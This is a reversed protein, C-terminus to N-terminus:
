SRNRLQRFEKLTGRFGKKVLYIWLIQIAQLPATIGTLYRYYFPKLNLMEAQVQHVGLSELKNRRNHGLSKQYVEITEKGCREWTFEGARKKGKRVLNKRLDPNRIMEMVSQALKDTNRADTLLAGNGAIEPLSAANSCVLPTECAFAELVPFGFGEELSPFVFMEAANYLLPIDEDPIYGPFIIREKMSRALKMLDRDGHFYHRNGAIVLHRNRGEETQLVDRFALVLNKLNKHPYDTGLYLIFNDPLNM